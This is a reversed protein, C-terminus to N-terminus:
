KTIEVAQALTAGRRILQRIAHVVDVYSLDSSLIEADKVSVGLALLGQYRRVVDPDQEIDPEPADHPEPKEPQKPMPM